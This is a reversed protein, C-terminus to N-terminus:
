VSENLVLDMFEPRRDRSTGQFHSVNIPSSHYNVVLFKDSETIVLNELDYYTDNVTKYRYIGDDCKVKEVEVVNSNDGRIFGKM